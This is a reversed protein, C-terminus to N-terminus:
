FFQLSPLVLYLKKGKGSAEATALPIANNTELPSNKGRRKYPEKLEHERQFFLGNAGFIPQNRSLSQTVSLPPTM